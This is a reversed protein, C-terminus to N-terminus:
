HAADWNAGVDAGVELPITLNPAVNEMATVVAETVTEAHETPAELVLEDHVQLLLRAGWDPNEALVKDVAIMASKMIDAATGQIPANIAQREAFARQPGKGDAGRIAIKRGAQTLVYGHKRAFEKTEEM